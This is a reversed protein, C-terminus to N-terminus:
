QSSLILRHVRIAHMNCNKIGVGTDEKNMIAAKKAEPTVNKSSLYTSVEEWDENRCLSILPLSEVNGM